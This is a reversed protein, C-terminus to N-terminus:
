LADSGLVLPTGASSGDFSVTLPQQSDKNRSYLTMGKAYNLYLGGDLLVGPVGTVSNAGAISPAQFTFKINNAFVNPTGAGALFGARTNFSNQYFFDYNGLVVNTYKTATAGHTGNINDTTATGTDIGVGDIKVFSYTNGNLPPAFEGSLIAVAGTGAANLTTLDNVIQANSPEKVDQYISLSPVLVSNTYGAISKPTLFKGDKLSTPYNCFYLTGAAKSGSGSGRDLFAMNIAPMQVGADSYLQNWNTISGTVIGAVESKSFNTKAFGAFAGTGNYVANPVAVGFVDDYIGDQQIGGLQTATLATVGNLNFPVNFIAVEEDSIGWDPIQQTTAFGTSLHYSPKTYDTDPTANTTAVAGLIAALAPYLLTGGTGVQPQVGNPFSGGNFKYIYVINTGAPVPPAAITSGPSFTASPYFGNTTGTVIAYNGSAPWAVGTANAATQDTYIDVSTATLFQEIAWVAAPEQASGGAAFFIPTTSTISAPPLAHAVSTGLVAAVAAGILTTKDSYKM